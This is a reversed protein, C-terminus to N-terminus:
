EILKLKFKSGDLLEIGSNHPDEIEGDGYKEMFSKELMEDGEFDILRIPIYGVRIFLGKATVKFEGTNRITNILDLAISRLESSSHDSYYWELFSGRDITLTKM